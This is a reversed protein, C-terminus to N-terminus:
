ENADNEFEKKLELYLTKRKEKELKFKNLRKQLKKQAGEAEKSRLQQEHKTKWVKPNDVLDLPLYLPNIMGKVMIILHEESEFLTKLYTKSFKVDGVIRKHYDKANPNFDRYVVLAKMVEKKLEKDIQIIMRSAENLKEEASERKFLLERASM